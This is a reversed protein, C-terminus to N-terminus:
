NNYYAPWYITNGDPSVVLTRSYGISSDIVNSESTFDTNWIQIPNGPLVPAVFVDGGSDVACATLAGGSYIAQTMGAGTQYNIRDVHNYSSWIINGNNDTTAGRTYNILTDIYAGTIVKIPNFSAPSGDANYVFIEQCAEYTNDSTKISDSNGYYGFWVKGDPSTALAQCGSGGQHLTDPFYGKFTWGQSFSSTSFTLMLLFLFSVLIKM